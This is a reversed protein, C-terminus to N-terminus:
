LNILAAIAAIAAPLLWGIVVAVLTADEHNM